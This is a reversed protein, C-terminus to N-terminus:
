PVIGLVEREEPTLGAKELKAMASIRLERRRKVRVQAEAAAVAQTPAVIKWGFSAWRAGLPNWFRIREDVTVLNVTHETRILDETAHEASLLDILAQDEPTAAKSQDRKLMDLPFPWYGRVTYRVIAEQM